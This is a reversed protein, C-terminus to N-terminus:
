VFNWSYHASERRSSSLVPNQFRRPLASQKRDQQLCLRM